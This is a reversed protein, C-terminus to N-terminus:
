PDRPMPRYGILLHGQYGPMQLLGVKTLNEYLNRAHNGDKVRIQWVRVSSESEGNPAVFYLGWHTNGTYQIMPDATYDDSNRVAKKADMAPEVCDSPCGGKVKLGFGLGGGKATVGMGPDELCAATKANPDADAGFLKQGALQSHALTDFTLLLVYQHHTTTLSTEPLLLKSFRQECNKSRPLNEGDDFYGTPIDAHAGCGSILGWICAVLLATCHRWAYPPHKDANNRIKM